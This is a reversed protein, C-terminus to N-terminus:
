PRASSREIFRYPAPRPATLRPRFVMLGVLGKKNKVYSFFDEDIVRNKLLSAHRFLPKGAKEIYFAMHTVDLGEKDTVLALIDGSALPASGALVVTTPFYFVPQPATAIMWRDEVYFTRNTGVKNLLVRRVKALPHGRAVNTLYGKRENHDAWVSTFHKREHCFLPKGASEYMVDVLRPLFANTYDPKRAAAFALVHEVFTMCDLYTLSTPFLRVPLPEANTAEKKAKSKPKKGPKPKRAAALEALRAKTDPRYKRGLFYESIKEIRKQPPMHAVAAILAEAEAKDEMSKITIEAPGEAASRGACSFFLCFCLAWAFGSRVPFAASKTM